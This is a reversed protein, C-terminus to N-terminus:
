LTDSKDLESMWSEENFDIISSKLIHKNDQWNSNNPVKNLKELTQDAYYNNNIKNNQIQTNYIKIPSDINTIDM